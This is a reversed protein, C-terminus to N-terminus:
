RPSSFPCGSPTPWMGACRPRIGAGTQQAVPIAFGNCVGCCFGIVLFSISGTAGVAALAQSGLLKGVIMADVMNYMQQFLLGFLTPVAFGLILKM